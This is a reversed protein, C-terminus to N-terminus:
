TGRCGGEQPQFGLRALVPGFLDPYAAMTEALRLARAEDPDLDAGVFRLVRRSSLTYGHAALRALEEGTVLGVLSPGCLAPRAVVTLRHYRRRVARLVALAPEPPPWHPSRRKRRPRPLLAVTDAAHRALDRLKRQRRAEAAADLGAFRDLLAAGDTGPSTQPEQHRGPDPPNSSLSSESIM